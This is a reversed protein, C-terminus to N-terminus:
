IERMEEEPYNLNNCFFANKTSHNVDNNCKDHSPIFRHEVLAGGGLPRKAPSKM